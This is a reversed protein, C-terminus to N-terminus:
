PELDPWRGHRGENGMYSGCRGELAEALKTASSIESSEVYVLYTQAACEERWYRTGHVDPHDSDSLIRRHERGCIPCSVCLVPVHGIVVKGPLLLEHGGATGANM